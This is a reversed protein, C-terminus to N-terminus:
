VGILEGYKNMARTAWWLLLRWGEGKRRQRRMAVYRLTLDQQIWWLMKTLLHCRKCLAHRFECLSPFGAHRMPHTKVEPNSLIFSCIVGLLLLFFSGYTTFFFFDQCKCLTTKRTIIAFEAFSCYVCKRCMSLDRSVNILLFWNRTTHHQPWLLEQQMVRCIAYTWGETLFLSLSTLQQLPFLGRQRAEQFSTIWSSFICTKTAWCWEFSISDNTNPWWKSFIARATMFVWSGPCWTVKCRSIWASHDFVCHAWVNEEWLHYM